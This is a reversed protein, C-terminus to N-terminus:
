GGGMGTGADRLTKTHWRMQGKLEQNRHSVVHSTASQPEGLDGASISGSDRGMHKAGISSSRGMFEQLTDEEEEEEEEETIREHARSWGRLDQRPQWM